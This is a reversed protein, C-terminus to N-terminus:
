LRFPEFGAHTRRRAPHSFLEPASLENIRELLGAVPAQRLRRLVAVDDPTTLIGAELDLPDSAPSSSKSVTSSDM